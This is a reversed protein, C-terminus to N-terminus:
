LVPLDIFYAHLLPLREQPADKECGDQRVQEGGRRHSVNASHCGRVKTPHRDKPMYYLRSNM